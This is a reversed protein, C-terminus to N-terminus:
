QVPACGEIVDLHNAGQSLISACYTGTLVLHAPNLDYNVYFGDVGGDIPTNNPIGPIFVCDKVVQVKAPDIPSKHLEIDCTKVLQTIIGNLADTLDQLANTASIAYYTVGNAGNLNPVGGANAMDNLTASYVESGPIGIVYTNIGQKQLNQIQTVVNENDLCSLNANPTQTGDCCNYNANCNNGGCKCDLNQTCAEKACTLSSNCNPGGDTALLVKKSPAPLDKGAGQTFYALAQQLAKSTPTGGAPTQGRVTDLIQTLNQSGSVIPVNIADTPTSGVTCSSVIDQTNIPAAPDFPFLELGFNIDKDFSPLVAQLAQNLIAWKNATATGPIDNMSGSEDIVMLMNVERVDAQLNTQGCVQGKFLGNCYNPDLTTNAAGGTAVSDGACPQGPLCFGSGGGTAADDSKKSSCGFALGLALASILGLSKNRDLYM